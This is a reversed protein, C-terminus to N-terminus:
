QPLFMFGAFPVSDIFFFIVAPGREFRDLIQSIIKPSPLPVVIVISTIFRPHTVRREKSDIRSKWFNGLGRPSLKTSASCWVQFIQHYDLTLSRPEASLGSYDDKKPSDVPPLVVTSSKKGPTGSIFYTSYTVVLKSPSRHKNM